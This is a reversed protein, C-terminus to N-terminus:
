FLLVMMTSPLRVIADTEAEWGEKDLILQESNGMNTVPVFPDSSHDLEYEQNKVEVNKGLAVFGYSLEKLGNEEEGAFWTM